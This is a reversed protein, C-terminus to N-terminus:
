IGSLRDFAALGANWMGEGFRALVGGVMAAAIWGGWRAAVHGYNTRVRVEVIQDQLATETALGDAGVTRASIVLQLRLRGRRQATVTWRWSAFDDTLPDVTGDIWQTEPSVIEICFGGEPARLRVSIAKTIVADHPYATGGSQLSEGLARVSAKAIRVEGTRPKGVRMTRPLNEILRGPPPAAAQRPLAPAPM